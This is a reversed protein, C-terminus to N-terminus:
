KKFFLIRGEAFIVLDSLKDLGCLVGCMIIILIDSIKHEIYSPHRPDEIIGFREKISM